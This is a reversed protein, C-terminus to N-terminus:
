SRWAKKEGCIERAHVTPLPPNERQRGMLMRRQEDLVAGARWPLFLSTACSIWRDASPEMARTELIADLGRQRSCLCADFLECKRRPEDIRPGLAPHRCLAHLSKCRPSRGRGNWLMIGGYRQRCPGRYLARQQVHLSVQSPLYGSQWVAVENNHASM